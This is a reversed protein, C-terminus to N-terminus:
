KNIIVNPGEGIGLWMGCVSNSIWLKVRHLHPEVDHGPYIYSLECKHVNWFAVACFWSYHRTIKGHTTESCCYTCPCSVIPMVTDWGCRFKFSLVCHNLTKTRQCLHTVFQTNNNNNKNKLQGQYETGLPPSILCITYFFNFEITHKPLRASDSQTLGFSFTYSV